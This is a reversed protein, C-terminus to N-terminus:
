PSETVNVAVTIAPAVPVTVKMSPEEVSPVAVSLLPVVVKLVVDRATPLWLM